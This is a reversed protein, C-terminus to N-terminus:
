SSKDPKLSEVHVRTLHLDDLSQQSRRETMRREESEVEHILTETQRREIRKSLFKERRALVEIKQGAIRSTLAATHRAGANSETHGALRDRLEGSQMGAVMLRRGRREREAAAERSQQMRALESRASELTLRRQEEELDLVRLLRRLVLSVPM